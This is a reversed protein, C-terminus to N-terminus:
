QLDRHYSQLSRVAAKGARYEAIGRASARAAAVTTLYPIKYKIAAKRIYGDDFQSLKGIPTNIILDIGHSMMEDVIHPRKLEHVKYSIEAPIGHQQFCAHTGTTAKIRFGLEQFRRAIDVM